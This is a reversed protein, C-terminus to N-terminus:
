YNWNMKSSIFEFVRKTSQDYPSVNTLKKIKEREAKMVDNGNILNNLFGYLDDVCHIYEGKLIDLANEFVFGFQKKYEEYDDLTIAIPKDLLLYDYYIGSYDGIMADTQSLFENTQMNVADMQENTLIRINSCGMDKLISMDQAPHPKLVILIRNDVLFKNLRVAEEVTYIIPVGLPFDFDCDVREKNMHKRFTPVWAIVKDFSSLDSYIASLGHHERFLQDNRPLGLSVLQEPKLGKYKQVYPEFFPSQNLQYQCSIITNVAKLMSGHVIYINLQKQSVKYRQLHRNCSISIKARNCRVYCKVKDRLTKPLIPIFEVNKVGYNCYKTPDNVRWVICYDENVGKDLLFKFIEYTNCSLDPHSELIIENNMPLLSCFFNNVYFKIRAIQNSNNRGLIKKISNKIGM